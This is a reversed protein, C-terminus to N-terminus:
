FVALKKKLSESSGFSLTGSVKKSLFDFIFQSKVNMLITVNKLEILLVNLTAKHVTM